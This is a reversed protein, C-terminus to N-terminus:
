ISSQRYRLSLILAHESEDDYAEIKHKSSSAITRGDKAWYSVAQPYATITCELITRRGPSQGIRRNPLTIKPAVTLSLDTCGCHFLSGFSRRCFPFPFRLVSDLKIQVHVFTAWSHCLSRALEAIELFHTYVAPSVIVRKHIGVLREAAVSLGADYPLWIM